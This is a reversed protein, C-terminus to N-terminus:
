LVNGSKRRTKQELMKESRRKTRERKEKKSKAANLSAWVNM